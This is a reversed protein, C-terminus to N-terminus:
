LITNNLVSSLHTHHYYANIRAILHNKVLKFAQIIVNQHMNDDKIGNKEFIM